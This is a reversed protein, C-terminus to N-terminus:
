HAWVSCQKCIEINNKYKYYVKLFFCNGAHNHKKIYEYLYKLFLLIKLHLVEAWLSGLWPSSFLYQLSRYLWNWQVFPTGLSKWAAFWRFKLFYELAGIGVAARELSRVICHARLLALSSVSQNVTRYPVGGTGLNLHGTIVVAIDLM